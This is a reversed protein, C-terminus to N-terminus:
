YPAAPAADQAPQTDPAIVVRSPRQLTADAVRAAQAATPGAKVEAVVARKAADTGDVATAVATDTPADVKRILTGETKGSNTAVGGPGGVNVTPDINSQRSLLPIAVGAAVLVSAALAMRVPSFWRSRQASAAAPTAVEPAPALAVATSVRRSLAAFDVDAPVDGAEAVLLEGLRREAALMARADASTALEREVADRETATLLAGDGEAYQSVLFELEDRTM